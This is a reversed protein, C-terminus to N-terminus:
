SIAALVQQVSRAIEKGTQDPPLTDPLRLDYVPVRAFAEVAIAHLEHMFYDLSWLSTACCGVLMQRAPAGLEMFWNAVVRRAARERDYPDLRAKGGGYRGAFLVARLPVRDVFRADPLATRAPVKMHEPTVGRALNELRPHKMFVPRAVERLRHVAPLLWVPVLPKRKRLFLHPFLARHYPYVFFPKPFSLLEGGASLICCDDSLFASAPLRTLEVIASTKGTGGWAPIAVGRKDIAIAAAHILGHGQSLLRHQILPQMFPLPDRRCALRYGDETGTVAVDYEVIWTTDATYEYLGSASCRPREDRSPLTVLVHPSSKLNSIEPSGATDPTVFSELEKEVGRAFPFGPEIEVIVQGHISFRAPKAVHSNSQSM